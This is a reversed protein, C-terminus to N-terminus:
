RSRPPEDSALLRMVERRLKALSPCDPEPVLSMRATLKEQHIVERYRGGSMHRSLWGKADRIAEPDDPPALDLPLGAVGRLSTASALLWAEFERVALVVALRVDSRARSARARLEPGLSCATDDDADLLILVAGGPGTRRAALEVARELEGPRLLRSRPVRLVDSTTLEPMALGEPDREWLRRLLIPVATTEGHGEVICAVRRTM